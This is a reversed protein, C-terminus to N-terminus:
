GGLRPDGRRGCQERGDARRGVRANAQDLEIIIDLIGGPTTLKDQWKGTVDAAVILTSFYASLIITTLYAMRIFLKM